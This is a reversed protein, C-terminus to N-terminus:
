KHIEFSGWSVSFKNGLVSNATENNNYGIEILKDFM